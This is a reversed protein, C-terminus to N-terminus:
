AIQFRQEGLEVEVRLSGGLAEIYRRLTDIQAREINGREISSVRNQSVNLREALQVQTLEAEERLGRLRHVLVAELMERKHENVGRRDVPRKNPMDQLSTSM